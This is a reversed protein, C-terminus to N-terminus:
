GSPAPLPNMIKEENGLGKARLHASTGLGRAPGTRRAVTFGDDLDEEGEACGLGAGLGVGGCGHGSDSGGLGRDMWGARGGRLRAVGLEGPHQRPDVPDAPDDANPLVPGWSEAVRRHLHGPGNAFRDGGLAVIVSSLAAPQPAAHVFRVGWRVDTNKRFLALPPRTHKM